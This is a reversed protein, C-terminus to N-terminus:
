AKINVVPLISYEAQRPVRLVTEKHGQHYFLPGVEKQHLTGWVSGKLPRKVQWTLNMWEGLAAAAAACYFQERKPSLRAQRGAMAKRPAAFHCNLIGSVLFISITIDSALNGNKWQELSDTFHMTGFRVCCLSSSCTWEFLFFGPIWALANVPQIRRFIAQTLFKWRSFMQRWIGLTERIRSRCAKTNYSSLFLLIHFMVRQPWLDWAHGWFFPMVTGGNMEYVWKMAFDGMNIIQRFPFTWLRCVACCLDNERQTQSPFFIGVLLIQPCHERFYFWM